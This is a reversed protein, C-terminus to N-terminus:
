EHIVIGEKKLFRYLTRTGIGLMAAISERTKGRNEQVTKLIHQRCVEDLTTGERAHIRHEDPEDIIGQIRIDSAARPIQGIVEGVTASEPFILLGHKVVSRDGCPYVPTVTTYGIALKKM